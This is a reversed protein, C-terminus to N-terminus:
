RVKGEKSPVKGVLPPLMRDLDLVDFRIGILHLPRVGKLGPLALVSMSLNSALLALAVACVTSSVVSSDSPSSHM